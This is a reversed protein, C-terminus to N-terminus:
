QYYNFWSGGYNKDFNEKSDFAVDIKTRAFYGNTDYKRALENYRHDYEMRVDTTLQNLQEITFLFFTASEFCRSIEWIASNCIQDKLQGIKKDPISENAEIRAVREFSQFTVLLNELSRNGVTTGNAIEVYRNRIQYQKEADYNGLEGSRFRMESSSYDFVICLRAQNDPIITDYRVNLVSEGYEVEIWRALEKEPYSLSAKGEKLRKTEKYDADSPIIM